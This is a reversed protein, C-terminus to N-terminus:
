HSDDEEYDDFVTGERYEVERKIMVSTPVERVPLYEKPVAIIGDLWPLVCIKMGYVEPMGNIGQVAFRFPQSLTQNTFEYFQKSGILVILERLNYRGALDHQHTMIGRLVDRIDFVVEDYGTVTIAMEQEPVLWGLQRLINVFGNARKRLSKNGKRNRKLLYRGTNFWSKVVVPNVVCIRNM